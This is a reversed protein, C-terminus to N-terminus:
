LSNNEKKMTKVRYTIGKTEVEIAGHLDTRYIKVGEQELRKLTELSPHGFSNRAGVSIIAIQPHINKLFEAQSSTPSGHHGVKLVDSKLVSSALDILEQEGEQELDGALLFSAKKYSLKIVLSNNNLDSHTGFLLEKGPHLIELKVGKKLKLTQGRQLNSWSIQKNEVLNWFKQNRPSEQDAQGVIVRGVKIKELISPLGGAHDEHFHSVILLDLQGIGQRLLFPLVVKEGPDFKKQYYSPQGGGDLLIKEGGPAQIIIADGQGVDLFTVKLISSFGQFLNFILFIIVLSLAGIILKPKKREARNNIFILSILVLYYFILLFPSPSPVAVMAWSLSSLCSTLLLTVKVLLWLIGALSQALCLSVFGFLSLLIGFILVGELFPLIILNALFSILSLQNFYYITLPIVGLHVAFIVALAKALLQPLFAFFQQLPATLIVLSLLALFSLQFSINWLALPQFLLILGAAGALSTYVDNKRGLIPAILMMLAMIAARVISPNAGAALTYVFLFLIAALSTVLSPLNLLSGLGLFLATIIVMNQGSAALVHTLGVRRFDEMVKPPLAKAEGFVIGEVLASFDQPLLRALQEKIRKKGQYVLSIIGRGPSIKKIAGDPVLSAKVNIGRTQLYFGYSFEGPNRASPLTQIIVPLKIIEGPALDEEGPYFLQVKERIRLTGGELDETVLTEVVTSCTTKEVLPEEIVRATLVVTKGGFIRFFEEGAQCNWGLWASALMIVTAWLFYSKASNKNQSLLLAFLFSILGGLGLALYPLKGYYGILLGVIYLLVLKVLPREM